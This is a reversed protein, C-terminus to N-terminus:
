DGKRFVLLGNSGFASTDIRTVLAYGESFESSRLLTDRAFIELTVVYEPRHDLILATPIAYPLISPSRPAPNYPIAQPSVLGVTDLIYASSYYGLTGIESAAVVCGSSIQEKLEIALAKYLDERQTLDGFPQVKSLIDLAPVQTALLIAAVLLPRKRKPDGKVIMNALTVIGKGLGVLWFPLLPALYWPM